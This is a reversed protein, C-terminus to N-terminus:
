PASRAVVELLPYKAPVCDVSFVPITAGAVWGHANELTINSSAVSARLNVSKCSALPDTPLVCAGAPPVDIQAIEASVLVSNPTRELRVLEFATDDARRLRLGENVKSFFTPDELKVQDGTTFPWAEEATCFRIARKKDTSAVPELQVTTCGDTRTVGGVTFDHTRDAGIPDFAIRATEGACFAVDKSVNVIRIKTADLPVLQLVGDVWRTRLTGKGVYLATVGGVELVSGFEPGHGGKVSDSVVFPQELTRVGHPPVFATAPAPLIDAPIEIELARDLLRADIAPAPLSFWRVKLEIETDNEITLAGGAGTCRAGFCPDTSPPAEGRAPEVFTSSDGSGCAALLIVVSVITRRMLHNYSREAM